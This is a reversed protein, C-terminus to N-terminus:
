PPPLCVARVWSQDLRVYSCREGVGCDEDDVCTDNPM